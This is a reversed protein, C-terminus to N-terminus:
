IEQKYIKRLMKSYIQHDKCGRKKNMQMPLFHRLTMQTSDFAMRGFGMYSVLFKWFKLLILDSLCM